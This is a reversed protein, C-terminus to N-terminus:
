GVKQDKLKILWLARRNLQVIKISLALEVKEQRAVKNVLRTKEARAQEGKGIEIVREARTQKKAEVGAAKIKAEATGAGVEARM